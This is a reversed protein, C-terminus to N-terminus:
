SASKGHLLAKSAVRMSDTMAKDRRQVVALKRSIRPKLPRVILGDPPKAGHVIVAPVISAGLGASVAGKIAELHSLHIADEEIDLPDDLWDVIMRRLVAARYDLVLPRNRFFAPTVVDPVDKWHVPLIAVLEDEVMATSNLQAMDVPLTVIALDLDNDRVLNALEPSTGAVVSIQITPHDRRLNRLVKGATYILTTSSMGIRVRGVSGDKYRRM